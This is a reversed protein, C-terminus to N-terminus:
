DPFSLFNPGQLRLLASVQEFGFYRKITNSVDIILHQQDLCMLIGQMTDLAVSAMEEVSISPSIGPRAQSSRDDVSKVNTEM